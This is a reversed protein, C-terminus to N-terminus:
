IAEAQVTVTFSVRYSTLGIPIFRNENIVVRTDAYDSTGYIFNVFISKMPDELDGIHGSLEQLVPYLRNEPGIHEELTTDVLHWVEGNEDMYVKHVSRITGYNQEVNFIQEIERDSLSDGNAFLSNVRNKAQIQNYDLLVGDIKRLVKLTKNATFIASRKSM